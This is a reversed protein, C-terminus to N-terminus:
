HGHQIAQIIQGQENGVYITGLGGVDFNHNAVLKASAMPPRVTSVSAPLRYPDAKSVDVVYGLDAISQVTIASLAHEQEVTPEMLEAGFERGLGLFVDENWHTGVGCSGSLGSQLPVKNGSYDEGGAVNFAEIALEGSFYTDGLPERVLDREVWLTGFGLVHAIEHLMVDQLLREVRYLPVETRRAVFSPAIWIQGLAPLGAPDGSRVYVPGGRGVVTGGLENWYVLIRLDDVTDNVSTRVNGDDVLFDFGNTSFDVDPLGETIITEWRRAALQMADKHVEPVDGDFVLEINFPDEGSPVVRVYAAASCNNDTNTEGPVGDVCAGYYYTGPTSPATVSISERSAGSAHPRNGPGGYLGDLGTLSRVDDAGVPTDTTDIVADDSRYYRLTTSGAAEPGQNRVTATLNLSEGAEIASTSAWALSVALDPVGVSVPVTESCNNNTDSEGPVPDVCATFHYTGPSSFSPYFWAYDFTEVSISHINYTEYPTETADFTANESRYLRVVTEASAASGLNIVAPAIRPEGTNRNPMDFIPLRVILDPSGGGFEVILPVGVSCNNEINTEGPVPDVCFGVYYTGEVSPAKQNAGYYATEQNKSWPLDIGALTDTADITPDDSLYYRLTTPAAPGTGINETRTHWSFRSGPTVSTHSVHPPFLALDPNGDENGEVTVRVGKSCHMERGWYSWGGTCVGYYYTGAYSPATWDLSLTQVATTEPRSWEFDRHIFVDSEDITSDLSRFFHLFWVGQDGVQKQATTELTFAQGATLRTDSVQFSHFIVGPWNKLETDGGPAAHKSTQIITGSTVSRNEIACGDSSQCTFRYNGEEIYGDDAFRLTVNGGSSSFTVGGASVDPTWFGSPLDSVTAGVGHTREQGGGASEVMISFTLTDTDGDADTVTYTMTHTGVSTPTGTLRRTAPNYSLGPVSPSLTYTMPGDGGSAEPLTLPSIATGVTYSQNGPGIGSAFSPQTDTGSGGGPATGKATQVITGSTVGRNEIACGGSGQCTYRYNGEEIYGGDNFRLTVNGGSSSFSVGGASLDPSWSGSPLDTVTDGVVHTREQGGSGCYHLGLTSLDNEAVDGLGSPICGSFQNRGLFLRELSALNGLEAPISGSLQNRSLNLLELNALNGLEPPISGTLQNANLWLEELNALNGLEAPIPGTLENYSLGLVRLNALNGLEAPISGSLQNENLSLRIVRGNVDVTVGEWQDLPVDSLWNDKNPWNAGGTANYLATLAERDPSGSGPSDLDYVEVQALGTTGNKGRVKATYNGPDLTIIAAASLSGAMLNPSGNWAETIDQGQSDEWNDNAMLEEGTDNSIISLVPDTLLGTLSPDDNALETGRAQVLVTKPSGTIIFGGIMVEDGTEVLARTSINVLRGNAAASDLDYVEVQALGTTGNKGRVKATYNGPDLTIIAAASLSGTTLNPSGNWAETIDQGQSDEWNDNAMLEEGTDNSIISLVPDTLLGTLSPDDNALETGRAQVLVTKPSGTIIFGGIMVEDGTEVLARTSINVLRGNAASTQQSIGLLGALVLLM